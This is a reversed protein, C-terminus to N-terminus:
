MKKLAQVDDYAIRLLPIDVTSYRESLLILSYSLDPLKKIRRGLVTIQSTLRSRAVDTKAVTPDSSTIVITPTKEILKLYAKPNSISKLFQRPATLELNDLIEVNLVFYNFIEKILQNTIPTKLPTSFRKLHRDIANVCRKSIELTTSCTTAARTSPNLSEPKVVVITHIKRILERLLYFDEYSCPNSLRLKEEESLPNGDCRNLYHM